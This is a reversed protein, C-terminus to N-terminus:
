ISIFRNNELELVLFKGHKDAQNILREIGKLTSLVPSNHVLEVSYIFMNSSIFTSAKILQNLSIVKETIKSTISRAM